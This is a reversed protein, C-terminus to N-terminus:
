GAKQTEPPASDETRALVSALGLLLSGFVLGGFIGGVAGAVFGYHRAAAPYYEAQFALNESHREYRAAVEAFETDGIARTAAYAGLGVGLALVVIGLVRLWAEMRSGMM